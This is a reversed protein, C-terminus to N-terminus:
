NKARRRMEDWFIFYIGSDMLLRVSGNVQNVLRRKHAQGGNVQEVRYWTQSADFRMLDAFPADFQTKVWGVDVQPYM